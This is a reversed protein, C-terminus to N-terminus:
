KEDGRYFEHFLGSFHERILAPRIARGRATTGDKGKKFVQAWPTDKRHTLNSLAFAEYPAYTKWTWGLSAQAKEADEPIRPVELAYGAKARGCTRDRIKLSRAKTVIPRRGYPKFEHYLSPIVPGYEWAEIPEDFLREGFVGLHWGYGLYCLKILKLVTLLSDERFSRELFYNAVHAPTYLAAASSQKRASAGPNGSTM